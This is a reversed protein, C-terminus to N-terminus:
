KYDFAEFVDKTIGLMVPVPAELVDTLTLPVITVFVHLWKFPSIFNGITYMCASLRVKSKSVFIISREILAAMLVMYIM